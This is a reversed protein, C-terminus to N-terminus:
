LPTRIESAPGKGMLLVQQEEARLEQKSDRLKLRSELRSLLLEAPWVEPLIFSGSEM